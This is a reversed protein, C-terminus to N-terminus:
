QIEIGDYELQFYLVKGGNNIYTHVTYIICYKVSCRVNGIDLSHLHALGATAQNLIEMPKITTTDCQGQMYESLTAQCLELAIYRFMRDQEM